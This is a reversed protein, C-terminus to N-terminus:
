KQVAADLQAIRAVVEAEAAILAAELQAIYAEDREVKHMFLRHSEKMRPDFSAFLWWQRGTVYMAGQVQAVYEEPMGALFRELHVASDRPCKLELGGDEGILGDPSVGVFTHQPHILFGAHEVNEGTEIEVAACAYPECERGWALAVGDPGECPRGTMREVALQWILDARAKLPKGTTKNKQMLANFKSGTFRGARLAYWDDSRQEVSASDTPPVTFPLITANM